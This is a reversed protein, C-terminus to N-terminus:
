SSISMKHLSCSLQDIDDNDSETEFDTGEAWFMGRIVSEVGHVHVHPRHVSSSMV